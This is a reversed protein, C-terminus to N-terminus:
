VQQVSLFLPEIYNATGAEFNLESYAGGGRASAKVVVKVTVVVPDGAKLVTTYDFFQTRDYTTVEEANSENRDILAPFDKWGIDVFQNANMSATLKVGAERCNYWSDDSRLIYFGHFVIVATMEYTATTAPVFTFHFQGEPPNGGGGAQFCIIPFHATDKIKLKGPQDPFVWGSNIAGDGTVGSIGGLTAKDAAYISSAFVPLVLSKTEGLVSRRLSAEKADVAGLSPRKEAKPRFEALYEKLEREQVKLDKAQEADMNKLNNGISQLFERRRKERGAEFKAARDNMSKLRVVETEFEKFRASHLEQIRKDLADLTAM